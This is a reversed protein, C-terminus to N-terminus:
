RRENMAAPAAKGAADYARMSPAFSRTPTPTTPYPSMPLVCTAVNEFTPPAATTATASQWRPRVVSPTAAAPPRAVPYASKRRSSSSRATSATTTAVGSWQCASTVISAQAAPFSTYTSFGNVSNTRSPSHISATAARV